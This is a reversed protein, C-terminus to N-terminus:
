DNPPNLNTRLQIFKNKMVVTGGVLSNTNNVDLEAMIISRTKKLTEQLDAVMIAHSLPIVTDTTLEGMLREANILNSEASMMSVTYKFEGNILVAEKAATIRANARDIQALISSIYAVADENSLSKSHM